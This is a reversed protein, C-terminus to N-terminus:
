EKICIQSMVRGNLFFFFLGLMTPGWLMHLVGSVTAHSISIPCPEDMSLFLFSTSNDARIVDLVQFRWMVWENMNTVLSEWRFWFLFVDLQRGEHCRASRFSHRSENIDIHGMWRIFFSSTSNDARMVDLVQFQWMVWENMNTVHSEWRFFFCVYLQWCEHCRASRFSNRSENIDVHGM